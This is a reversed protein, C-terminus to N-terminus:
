RAAAPHRANIGYGLAMPTISARESETLTWDLYDELHDLWLSLQASTRFGFVDSLVSVRYPFEGRVGVAIVVQTGGQGMASRHAKVLPPTIDQVFRYLWYAGVGFSM